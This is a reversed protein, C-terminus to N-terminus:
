FCGGPIWGRNRLELSSAEDREGIGDGAIGNSSLQDASVQSGPQVCFVLGGFRHPSYYYLSYYGGTSSNSAAWVNNTVVHGRGHQGGRDFTEGAFDDDSNFYRHKASNFDTYFVCHYGGECNTGASAPTAVMGGATGLVTTLIAAIAIRRNRPRNLVPM